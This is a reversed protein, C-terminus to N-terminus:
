GTLIDHAGRKAPLADGRTSCTNRTKIALYVYAQSLRSSINQPFRCGLGLTSSLGGVGRRHKALARKQQTFGVCDRNELLYCKQLTPVLVATTMTTTGRRCPPPVCGLVVTYVWCAFQDQTRVEPLRHPGTQVDADLVVRRWFGGNVVSLVVHLVRDHLVSIKGTKM